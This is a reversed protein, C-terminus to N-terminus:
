DGYTKRFYSSRIRQFQVILAPLEAETYQNLETKGAKKMHGRAAVMKNVQVMDIKGSPLRMGMEHCMSLIKKRMRDAKDVKHIDPGHQSRYLDDLYKIVRDAEENTLDKTSYKNGTVEWYVEDRYATKGTKALLAFIRASRKTDISM